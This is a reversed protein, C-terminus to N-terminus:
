VTEEVKRTLPPPTERPVIQDPRPGLQLGDNTIVKYCLYEGDVEMTTTNIRKRMAMEGVITAETGNYEPYLELKQLKVVENIRYPQERVAFGKLHPSFTLIM